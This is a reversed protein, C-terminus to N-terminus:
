IWLASISNTQLIDTYEVGRGVAQFNVWNSRLGKSEASTTKM